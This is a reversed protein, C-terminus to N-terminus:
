STATQPEPSAPSLVRLSDDADGVPAMEDAECLNAKITIRKGDMVKSAEGARLRGDRQWDSSSNCGDGVEDTDSPTADLEDDHSVASSSSSSSSSSEDLSDSTIASSSSTAAQQREMVRKAAGPAPRGSALLKKKFDAGIEIKLDITTNHQQQHHHQQQLNTLSSASFTHGNRALESGSSAFEGQSPLFVPSASTQQSQQSQRQHHDLVNPLPGPALPQFLAAQSAVLGGPGFAPQKQAQCYSYIISRWIPCCLDSTNPLGLNPINDAANLAIPQQHNHNPANTLQALSCCALQASAQQAVPCFALQCLDPQNHLPAGAPSSFPGAMSGPQSYFCCCSPVQKCHQQEHECKSTPSLQQENLKWDDVPSLDAQAQELQLQEELNFHRESGLISSGSDDSTNPATAATPTSSNTNVRASSKAQRSKSSARSTDLSAHRSAQRLVNISDIFERERKSTARQNRHRRYAEDLHRRLQQSVTSKNTSASADSHQSLSSGSRKILHWTARSASSNRTEEQRLHRRSDELSPSCNLIEILSNSPSAADELQAANTPALHHTKQVPEPRKFGAPANGQDRRRQQPQHHHHRHRHHHHQQSLDVFSNLQDVGNGAPREGKSREDSEDSGNRRSQSDGSFNASLNHHHHVIDVQLLREGLRQLDASPTGNENQENSDAGAAPQFKRGSPRKNLNFLKRLFLAIKGASGGLEEKGFALLSNRRMSFSRKHHQASALYDITAQQRRCDERQGGTQKGLRGPFAFASRQDDLDTRCSTTQAAPHDTRDNDCHVFDGSQQRRSPGGARQSVVRMSKSRFLSSLNASTTGGPAAATRGRREAGGAEITQERAQPAVSEGCSAQQKHFSFSRNLSFGRRRPRASAQRRAVCGSAAVQQNDEIIVQELQDLATPLDANGDALERQEQHPRLRRASLSRGRTQNTLRSLISSASGPSKELMVLPLELAQQQPAHDESSSSTSSPSSSASHENWGSVQIGSDLTTSKSRASVSLASDRGTRDFTPPRSTKTSNDGCNLNALARRPEQHGERHRSGTPDFLQRPGAGSAVQVSHAVVSGIIERAQQRNMQSAEDTGGVAEKKRRQQQDM